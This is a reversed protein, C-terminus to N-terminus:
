VRVLPRLNALLKDGIGQVEGLEEVRSFRGHQSRWAVIRGALVPGVGPLGDFEAASATNLNIPGGGAGAGPSPGAAGSGAGAAADAVPPVPDTASPVRIQEGDTLPRALNIRDLRAGGSAGGAALVADWVRSGAPLHVRGPRHVRGVVDVVVPGGVGASGAGATPGPLTQAVPVSQAVPLPLDEAAGPGAIASSPGAAPRSGASWGSRPQGTRNPVTTSSDAAATSRALVAAGIAVAILLAALAARLPIGPRLGRVAPPLRDAAAERLQDTWRGAQGPGTDATFGAGDPRDAAEPPQDDIV